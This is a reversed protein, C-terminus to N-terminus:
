FNQLSKPYRFSIITAFHRYNLSRIKLSIHSRFKTSQDFKEGLTVKEFAIIVSRDLNNLEAVTRKLVPV